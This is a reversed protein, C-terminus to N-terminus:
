GNVIKKRISGIIYGVVRIPDYKQLFSPAALHKAIILIGAWVFWRSRPNEVAKWCRDSFTEHAIVKQNDESHNLIIAIVDYILIYLGLIIWAGTAKEPFRNSLLRQTKLTMMAMMPVAM